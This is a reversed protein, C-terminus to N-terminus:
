RQRKYVDQSEKRVFNVSEEKRTDNEIHNSDPNMGNENNRENQENM